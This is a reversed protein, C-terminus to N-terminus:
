LDRRRRVREIPNGHGFQLQDDTQSSCEVRVTLVSLHIFYVRWSHFNDFASREKNARFSFIRIALIRVHQQYELVTAPFYESKTESESLMSGTGNLKSKQYHAVLLINLIVISLCPFVPFIMAIFINEFHYFEIGLINKHHCMKVTVPGIDM